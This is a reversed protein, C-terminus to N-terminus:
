PRKRQLHSDDWCNLLIRHLARWTLPLSGTVTRTGAAERVLDRARALDRADRRAGAVLARPHHAHGLARDTVRVTDIALPHASPLALIMACGIPIPAATRVLTMMTGACVRLITYSFMTDAFQWCFDLPAAM